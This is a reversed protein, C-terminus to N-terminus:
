RDSPGPSVLNEDFTADWHLAPRLGSITLAYCDDSARQCDEFSLPGISGYGASPDDISYIPGEPGILNTATGGFTLEGQPSQNFWTPSVVATEGPELVGNGASFSGPPDVSLSVAAPYDFQRARVSSGDGDQESSQWAIVFRRDSASAVAPRTQTGTAHTNVQYEGGRRYPWVLSFQSTPIPANQFRQAFVGAAGSDGPDDQGDSQWAIVFAQASTFSMDRTIRPASQHGATTTNVRFENGLVIPNPTAARAFVGGSSGDQGDSEWAVVFGGAFAVDPSAPSATTTNIQFEGGGGGDFLRAMVAGPDGNEGDSIWVVEFDGSPSMAIAPSHQNGTTTVNVPFEGGVPIGDPDFAQGYIGGQDGDQGSQGPPPSSEWVVVFKDAARAVRPSHQEATTPAHIMVEGGLPAGAADYRQGVIDSGSSPNFLTSWVIVFNGSDDAAVSPESQDSTTLTNVPFDAGLPAGAQDFRRGFVGSGDGDPATWVVVFGGNSIPAISPSQQNGSTSSNVPIEPSGAPWPTPKPTAVVTPGSTATPTPTPTPTPTHSPTTTIQLAEGSLLGACALGLIALGLRPVRM